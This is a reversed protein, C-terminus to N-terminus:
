TMGELKAMRWGLLGHIWDDFLSGPVHCPLRAETKVELQVEKKVEYKVKGSEEEKVEKKVHQKVLVESKVEHKVENQKHKQVEDKNSGQAIRKAEGRMEQKVHKMLHKDVQDTRSPPVEQKVARAAIQGHANSAHEEKSAQGTAENCREHKVGADGRRRSRM